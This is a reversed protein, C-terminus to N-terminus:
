RKQVASASGGSQWGRASSTKLGEDRIISNHWEQDKRYNLGGQEGSALDQELEGQTCCARELHARGEEHVLEGVPPPKGTADAKSARADKPHVDQAVIREAV